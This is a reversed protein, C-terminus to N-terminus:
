SMLLALPMHLTGMISARPVAVSGSSQGFPRGRRRGGNPCVGDTPRDPRGHGAAHVGHSAADEKGSPFLQM